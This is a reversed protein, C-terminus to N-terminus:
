MGIAGVNRHDGHQDHASLRRQRVARDRVPHAAPPRQGPRARYRQLLGNGM